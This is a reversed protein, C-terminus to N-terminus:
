PSLAAPPQGYSYSPSCQTSAVHALMAQKGSGMHHLAACYAKQRYVTFWSKHSIDHKQNAYSCAHLEQNLWLYLMKTVQMSIYMPLRKIQELRAM